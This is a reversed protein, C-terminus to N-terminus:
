LSGTLNSLQMIPLIIAAVVAGVTLGIIVLMIPEIIKSLGAVATDVDSEYFDAVQGMITDLQATKEGVEVMSVLMPPFLDSESIAEAIPIGQKIDEMTLVLKRKYVESGISRATIEITKLITVSSDLLNSLSRAFRSLYAKQFLAGFIPISLKIKDLYYRGQSTKSAAIYSFVVILVGAILILKQNIFFDSMGIIIRTILPLNSGISSFLDTLQPIVYVLMIIIVAVLLTFIVAPYMLASKVKKKISSAKEADHSLVELTKSLQGSAEGAQVMGIEQETFTDAFEQMAKSLSLGAVISDVLDQIVLKMKPSKDSQRILASLAKIMPIGANIMVGLLHFFNAKVDAKVKSNKIFFLNVRNFADTIPNGTSEMLFKKTGSLEIPTGASDSADEELLNLIVAEDEGSVPKKDEKKNLEFVEQGFNAFNSEKQLNEKSADKTEPLQKEM